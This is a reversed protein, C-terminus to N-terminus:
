SFYELLFLPGNRGKRASPELFTSVTWKKESNCLFRSSLNICGHYIRYLHFNNFIFSSFKNGFYNGVESFRNKRNSQRTVEKFFERHLQFYNNPKYTNKGQDNADENFWPFFSTLSSTLTIQPLQKKLLLGRESTDQGDDPFFSLARM